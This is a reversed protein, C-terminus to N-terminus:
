QYIDEELILPKPESKIARKEVGEMYKKHDIIAKLGKFEREEFYVTPFVQKMVQLIIPFDIPPAMGSLYIMEHVKGIYVSSNDDEVYMKRLFPEVSEPLNIWSELKSVLEASKQLKNTKIIRPIREVLLNFLGSLEKQTGIEELLKQPTGDFKQTFPVIVTRRKFGMSEDNTTLDFNSNYIFRVFPKYSFGKKHKPVVQISDEGIIQKFLATDPLMSGKLDGGTCLLKGVLEHAVFESGNCLRELSTNCCNHEGVIKKIANLFTTKGNGGPGFLILYQQLSTYPIICIALFDLLYDIGGNIPLLGDLYEIWRECTANPDYIIPIYTTTYYSPDPSQFGDYIHYIGNKLVIRELEPRDLLKPTPYQILYALIDSEVRRKWTGNRTSAGKGRLFDLINKYVQIVIEAGGPQYYYGNFWYLEKAGDVALPVHNRISRALDEPNNVNTSVIKDIDIPITVDEAAM